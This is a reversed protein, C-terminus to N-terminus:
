RRGPMNRRRLHRVFEDMIPGQRDFVSPARHAISVLIDIPGFTPMAPVGRAVLVDMGIPNPNPEPLDGIFIPEKPPEKEKDYVATGLEISLTGTFKRLKVGAVFKVPTNDADYAPSTFTPSSPDLDNSEKVWLAVPNAVTHVNLVETGKAKPANFVTISARVWSISSQAGLTGVFKGNEVKVWKRDTGFGETAAPNEGWELPRWFSIASDSEVRALLDITAGTM